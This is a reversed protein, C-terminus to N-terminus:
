SITFSIFGGSSDSSDQLKRAEQFVTNMDKVTEKAALSYGKAADTLDDYEEKLSQFRVKYAEDGTKKFSKAAEDMQKKVGLAQAATEAAKKNFDTYRQGLQTARRQLEEFQKSCGQSTSSISNSKGTVDETMKMVISISEPMNEGWERSLIISEIIYQFFRFSQNKIDFLYM